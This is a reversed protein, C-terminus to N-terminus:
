IKLSGIEQYIDLLSMNYEKALKLCQEYEPRVVKKGNLDIVKVKIEGYVTNITKIERPLVKREVTYKRLGITTTEFFIKEELTKLDMEDTLVSLKIGPRGKKMILPTLFVDKAGAQLLEEFVHSYIEPNMDDINTELMILKEEAENGESNGIIIRLLNPWEKVTKSGAGYGQKEHVYVFNNPIIGDSLVRILTAGTPTTMEYHSKRHEIPYDKLIELAAPSPVPITGHETSTFGTGLPVPITYIKQVGLYDFGIISGVLDIISDVAGVEHFHIESLESDHIKAEAQGLITFAELAKTKINKSLLSKEILGTISRYTREPQSEMDYVVDLKCASIHHRKTKNIKLSYGSLKLKKLQERLYKVPVGCEILAALTMDGSIGSFCDIIAIKM